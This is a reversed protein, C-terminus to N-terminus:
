ATSLSKCYRACEMFDLEFAPLDFEPSVPSLSRESDSYAEQQSPNRADTM